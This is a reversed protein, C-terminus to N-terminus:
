AEIGLLNSFITGSKNILQAPCPLRRAAPFFTGSFPAPNIKEWALILIRYQEQSFLDPVKKRCPVKKPVKKPM